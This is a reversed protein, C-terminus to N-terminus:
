TAIDIHDEERLTEIPAMKCTEIRHGPERCRGCRRPQRSRGDGAPRIQSIQRREQQQVALQLGDSIAITSAGKIVKRKREKRKTLTTNAARLERNEIELISHRHAMSTIGKALSALGELISTPSSGQHREVRRQM